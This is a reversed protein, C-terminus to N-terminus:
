PRKRRRADLFITVITLVGVGAVQASSPIAMINLGNRLIGVALVGLLNGLL